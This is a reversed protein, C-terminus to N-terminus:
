QAWHGIHYQKARARARAGLVSNKIKKVNKIKIKEKMPSQGSCM